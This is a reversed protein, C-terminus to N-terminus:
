FKKKKKEKSILLFGKKEEIYHVGAENYPFLLHREPIKTVLGTKCLAQIPRFLILISFNYRVICNADM